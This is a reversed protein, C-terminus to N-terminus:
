AGRRDMSELVNRVQAATQEIESISTAIPKISDEPVGRDLQSLLSAPSEHSVELHEANISSLFQSIKKDHSIALFPRGFAYAMICGHLRSSAVVTASFYKALTRKHSAFPRLANHVNTEEEYHWNNALCWQRLARSFEQNRDKGMENHIAHLLLPRQGTVGKRSGVLSPALRRALWISPCPSVEGTGAMQATESDRWSCFLASQAVQQVFQSSVASNRVLSDCAGVGWIILPNKQHSAALIDEWLPSFYKQLAGGGGFVLPVGAPIKRLFSYGDDWREHNSILPLFKQKHLLRRIAAASLYDGLNHQHCYIQVALGKKGTLCCIHNWAWQLTYCYRRRRNLM